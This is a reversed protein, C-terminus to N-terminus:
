TYRSNIPLYAPPSSVLASDNVVVVITGGEVATLRFYFAGLESRVHAVRMQLFLNSGCFASQWLKPHKKGTFVNTQTVAAISELSESSCPFGIGAEESESM